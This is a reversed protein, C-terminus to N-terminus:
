RAIIGFQQSQMMTGYYIVPRHHLRLLKTSVPGGISTSQSFTCEIHITTLACETHICTIRILKSEIHM